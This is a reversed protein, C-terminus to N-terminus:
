GAPLDVTATVLTIPHKADPQVGRDNPLAIYAIRSGEAAVSDFEGPVDGSAVM